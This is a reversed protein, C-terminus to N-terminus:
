GVPCYGRRVRRSCAAPSRGIRTTRSAGGSRRWKRAGTGGQRSRRASRSSGAGARCVDGGPRVTERHIPDQRLEVSRTGQGPGVGGRCGGRGAAGDGTTHPGAPVEVFRTGQGPVSGVGAAMGDSRATERQIPDQRLEVFRTGQGPVSGVGAAVGDSRVTEGGPCTVPPLSLISDRGLEARFAAREAMGGKAIGARWPALMAVEAQTVEREAMQGRLAQRPRESFRGRLDRGPKGLDVNHSVKDADTEVPRHSPHPPPALESAGLRMRAAIDPPLYPGFQYAAALLPSRVIVTRQYRHMARLAAGHNGHKTRAAALRALGEPTRPGTCKGGHM